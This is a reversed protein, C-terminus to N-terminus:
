NVISIFGHRIYGHFFYKKVFDYLYYLKLHNQTSMENASSLVNVGAQVKTSNISGYTRLRVNHILTSVVVQQTGYRDLPLLYIPPGIVLLLAPVQVIMFSGDIYLFSLIVNLECSMRVSMGIQGPVEDIM